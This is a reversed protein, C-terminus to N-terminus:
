SVRRQPKSGARVQELHQNAGHHFVSASDPSHHAALRVQLHQFLDLLSKTSPKEPQWRVSSSLKHALFNAELTHSFPDSHCAEAEKPVKRGHGPCAQCGHQKVLSAILYVATVSSV